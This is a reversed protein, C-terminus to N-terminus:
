DRPALSSQIPSSGMVSGAVVSGPLGCASDVVLIQFGPGNAVADYSSSPESLFGNRVLEREDAYAGFQSYNAEEATRLTRLELLCNASRGSGSRPESTTTSMDGTGRGAVSVQEMLAVMLKGADTGGKSGTILVTRGVRALLLDGEASSLGADAGHIPSPHLADDTMDCSGPLDSFRQMLARAGDSNATELVMAVVSLETSGTAKTFKTSAGHSLLSTSLHEDRLTPPLVDGIFINDGECTLALTSGSQTKARVQSVTDAWDGGLASVVEDPTLVPKSGGASSGSRRDLFVATLVLVAVVVVVVIALPLRAFSSRGSPATTAEDTPRTVISAGCSGCFRGDPGVPAGCSPCYSM